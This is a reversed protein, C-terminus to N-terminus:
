HIIVRLGQHCSSLIHQMFDEDVAVCGGTWLKAGKCHFFIASGEPYLCDANYDLVMGYDYEPVTHFMDEGKCAHHTAATDVIRNYWPGEEDCAFTSPTVPLWPLATGPDPKVGFATTVGFDGEPTKADGERTKGLGNKGIFASGERDLRWRRGDKAYYRVTANSGEDQRVLILEHVATDTRYTKLASRWPEEETPRCAGLLTLSLIGSLICLKPLLRLFTKM